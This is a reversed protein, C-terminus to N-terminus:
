DLSKTNQGHNMKKHRYETPTLGTERKFSQNFYSQSSFGNILATKGITLNTRELLNNAERM